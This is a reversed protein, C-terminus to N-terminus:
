APPESRARQVAAYADVIGYGALDNPRAALDVVAACGAALGNIGTGSGNGDTFPQASEILIRETRDIDGILDPNASWLLAVVGAVHPGAMSTGDARAYTSEPYASLVDVGPAVVDPKTRDSGDATVPGVSSFPALQGSEDVAGVSFTEDYIPLPDTITACDPGENGASAVVFIGAARLARAAPLLSTPDCGELDRPCSWSNNLVHASRTPDGAAFPDGGHPYPALMFQLCDLYRAPNGLNRQLNACAFWTADPAVGVSNGLASGLTHTGHGNADVPVTTGSWPDLWNGDHGNDLGRYSDRLEPHDWQVGTDSQGIVIGQGRVGLERWVRDAGIMTLNWQPQSPPDAGGRDQPLPGPLPRLVPNPLVRDVEPRQELLLRVPLGGEVELANVLYYPRYAIGLRDLLARLDRQDAEAHAVLTDYVFRRREDYDAIEAAAAVDAQDALVVFLHDGYTGPQGAGVYVIAGVLWLALAATGSLAPRPPGGWRRDLAIAGLALTLGIALAIGTAQAAVGIGPDFIRAPLSDTDVLALVVAFGFGGVIALPQWAFRQAPATAPTAYALAMAIWGLPAATLMLALELGNFALGSGVLLFTAGVVLGGAFIDWTRGGGDTSVAALWTGGVIRGVIVGACLGLGVALATDLLSGPAGWALWPLAVVAAIALAAILRFAAGRRPADSWTPPKVLWWILGLYLLSLLLQSLLMEQSRASEWLRGPALVLVYGAALLWARFAARARPARWWVALPLLVVGILGVEVLTTGVPSAEGGLDVSAWAWFRAVLAVGVVWAM